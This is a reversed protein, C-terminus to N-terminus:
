QHSADRPPADAIHDLRHRHSVEACRRMADSSSGNRTIPIDCACDQSSARAGHAISMDRSARARSADDDISKQPRLCFFTVSGRCNGGDAVISRGCEYRSGNVACKARDRAEVRGTKWRRSTNLGLHDGNRYQHHGGGPMTSALGERLVGGRATEFVAADVESAAVVNRAARAAATVTDIRRGRRLRTTNTM